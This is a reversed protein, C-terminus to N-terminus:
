FYLIDRDNRPMVDDQIVLGDHEALAIRPM